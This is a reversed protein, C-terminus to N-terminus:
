TVVGLTTRFRPHSFRAKPRTAFESVVSFGGCGGRKKLRARLYLTFFGVRFPFCFYFKVCCTENNTTPKVAGSQFIQCSNNSCILCALLIALSVSNRFFSGSTESNCIFGCLPVLAWALLSVSLTSRLVSWFPSVVGSVCSM